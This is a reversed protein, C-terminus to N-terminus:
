KTSWNREAITQWQLLIHLQWRGRSLEAGVHFIPLKEWNKSPMLKWARSESLAASAPLLLAGVWVLWRWHSSLLFLQVVALVPTAHIPILSSTPIFQFHEKLWPIMFPSGQNHKALLCCHPLWFLQAESHITYQSWYILGHVKSFLNNIAQLGPMLNM